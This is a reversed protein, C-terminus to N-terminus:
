SVQLTPTNTRAAFSFFIVTKGRLPGSLHKSQESLIKAISALHAQFRTAQLSHTKRFTLFKGLLEVNKWPQGKL